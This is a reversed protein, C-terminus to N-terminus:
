PLSSRLKRDTKSKSILFTVIAFVIAAATRAWPISDSPLLRALFWGSAPLWCLSAIALSASSLTLFKISLFGMLSAALALHLLINLNAVVGFVCLAIASTLWATSPTLLLSDDHFLTWILSLLWIVLAPAASRAFLDTTWANLLPPVSFWAVWCTIAAPLLFRQISPHPNM